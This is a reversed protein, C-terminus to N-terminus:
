FDRAVDLLSVMSRACAGHVVFERKGPALGKSYCCGGLVVECVKREEDEFFVTTEEDEFFADERLADHEKAVDM